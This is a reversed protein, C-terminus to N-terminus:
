LCVTSGGSRKARKSAKDNQRFRPFLRAWRIAAFGISFEGSGPYSKLVVGLSLEVSLSPLASEIGVASGVPRWLTLNAGCVDKRPQRIFNQLTTTAERAPIFEACLDSADTSGPTRQQEQGVSPETNVSRYCQRCLKILM